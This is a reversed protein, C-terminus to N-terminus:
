SVVLPRVCAGLMTPLLPLPPRAPAAGGVERARPRDVAVPGERGALWATSSLM